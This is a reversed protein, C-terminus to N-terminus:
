LRSCLWCSLLAGKSCNLSLHNWTCTVVGAFPQLLRHIWPISLLDPHCSLVPLSTQTSSSLCPSGPLCLGSGTPKWLSFLSSQFKDESWQITKLLLIIHLQYNNLLYRWSSHPFHPVLAILLDTGLLICYYPLLLPELNM